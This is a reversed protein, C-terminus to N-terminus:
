RTVARGLFELWDVAEEESRVWFGHANSGLFKMGILKFAATEIDVRWLDRDPFQFAIVLAHGHDDVAILERDAGPHRGARVAEASRMRDLIRINNSRYDIEIPEDPCSM